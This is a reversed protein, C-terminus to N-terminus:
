ASYLINVVKFYKFAYIVLENEIKDLNNRKEGLMSTWIEYTKKLSQLEWEKEDVINRKYSLEDKLQKEKARM